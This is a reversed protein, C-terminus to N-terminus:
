APGPYVGKYPSGDPYETAIGCIVKFNPHDIFDTRLVGMMGVDLDGSLLDTM